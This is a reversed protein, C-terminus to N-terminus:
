VIELEIELRVRLVKAVDIVVGEDGAGGLGLRAPRISREAQPPDAVRHGGAVGIGGDVVGHPQDLVESRRSAGSAL